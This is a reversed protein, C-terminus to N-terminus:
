IKLSKLLLLKSAPATDLYHVVSLASTQMGEKFLISNKLCELSFIPNTPNLRIPSSLTEDSRGPYNKPEPSRQGWPQLLTAERRLSEGTLVLSNSPFPFLNQRCSGQLDYIKGWNGAEHDCLKQYACYAFQNITITRKKKPYVIHYQASM